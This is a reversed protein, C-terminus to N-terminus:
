YEIERTWQMLWRLHMICLIVGRGDGRHHPQKSKILVSHSLVTVMVSRKIFGLLSDAALQFEPPIGADLFNEHSYHEVGVDM